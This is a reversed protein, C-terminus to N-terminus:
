LRSAYSHTKLQTSEKSLWTLLCSCLTGVVVFYFVIQDMTELDRYGAVASVFITIAFGLKMSISILLLVIPISQLQPAVVERGTRIHSGILNRRTAGLIGFVLLFLSLLSTLMMTVVYTSTFQAINIRNESYMFMLGSSVLQVVPIFPLVVLMLSLALSSPRSLFREEITLRRIWRRASKQTLFFIGFGLNAFPFPVQLVFVFWKTSNKDFM